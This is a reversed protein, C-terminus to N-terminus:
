PLRRPPKVLTYKLTGLQVLNLFEHISARFHLHQAGALRDAPWSEARKSMMRAEFDADNQFIGDQAMCAIALACFDEDLLTQTALESATLGKTSLDFNYKQHRIREASAKALPVLRDIAAQWHEGRFFRQMQEL